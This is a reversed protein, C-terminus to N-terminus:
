SPERAESRAEAEAEAEVVDVDIVTGRQGADFSGGMDVFLGPDAAVGPVSLREELRRRIVGAVWRRTWPLLLVLGM